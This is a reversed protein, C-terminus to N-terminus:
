SCKAKKHLNSAAGKIRSSANPYKNNLLGLAQCAAASDGNKLLTISVGLLAEPARTSDPFKKYIDFYGVSADKYRQQGALSQALLFHAPVSKKGQPTKIINQAISEAESYNKNMLAQQGDKLSSGASPTAQPTPKESVSATPAAASTSAGGGSGGAAFNADDIKKNLLDIKTQVQNTLDDLQGRMIRQQDELNNVRTLLEPLLGSPDGNNQSSGKSNRDSSGSSSPMQQLQSVQAKLAEIQNQISIMDRDQAYAASTMGGSLLFVGLLAGKFLKKYSLYDSQQSSTKLFLM